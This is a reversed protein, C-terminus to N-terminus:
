GAKVKVKARVSDEDDGNVSDFHVRCKKIDGVSAADKVKVVMYFDEKSLGAGVKVTDFNGNAVKQTVNDGGSEYTVKFKRSSGCGDITYNDSGVIDENDYKIRFETMGGVRTRARATQMSISVPPTLDDDGVYDPTLGGKIMADPGELVFGAQVSVAPLLWVLFVLSSLALRKM